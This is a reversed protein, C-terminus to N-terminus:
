RIQKFPVDIKMGASGKSATSTAKKPRTISIQNGGGRDTSTAAVSSTITFSNANPVSAVTQENGILDSTLGGVDHLGSIDVIDNVALGHAVDNFTVTTSSATTEVVNNSPTASDITISTGGGRGTATANSTVQIVVRNNDPVAYVDHQKNLESTGIGNTATANAITIKSSTSLGHNQYDVIIQRSGSTTSLPEITPTVTQQVEATITNKTASKVKSLISGDFVFGGVDVANSDLIVFDNVDIFNNANITIDASGNQTEILVPPVPLDNVTVENGGFLDTHDSTITADDPLNTAFGQGDADLTQVTLERNNLPQIVDGNDFVTTPVGDVIVTENVGVTVGGYRFHLRRAGSITQISLSPNTPQDGELFTKSGANEAHQVSTIGSQTAVFGSGKASGEVGWTIDKLIVSSYRLGTDGSFFTQQSELNTYRGNTKDFDVFQSSCTISISATNSNNDETVVADSIRGAFVQIPDAVLANSDNLFAKFIKVERDIYDESLLLNTYTQDVGSLSVTVTEITLQNSEVIDSFSLFHGTPNYTNSDYTVAFNGDSLYVTGSDFAVSLLHFPKNEDKVIETQFATTSGRDM